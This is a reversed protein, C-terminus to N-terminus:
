KLGLIHKVPTLVYKFYGNKSLWESLFAVFCCLLIFATSLLAFRYGNLLEYGGKAIEFLPTLVFSIIAAHFIYVFLSNRGFVNIFSLGNPLKFNATSTFLLFIFSFAILLYVPSAPYFFELYGEREGQLTNANFLLVIGLIFLLLSSVLVSKLIYLISEMKEAVLCGIIAFSIWPFIPFWGDVFLRQSQFQISQLFDMSFRMNDTSDEISFRYGYKNQLLISAAICALAIFLKAYVHFNFILINVFIGISILYLVDFAQFPLTGWILWDIGVATCMLYFGQWFKQKYNKNKTFSLYFSFGSLFIFLPAALSCILRMANPNPKEMVYPAANAIIMIFIATTRMFDINSLRSAM